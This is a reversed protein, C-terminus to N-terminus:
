SGAPRRGNQKQCTAFLPEIAEERSYPRGVRFPNELPSAKMGRRPVAGGVYLTLGNIEAWRVLETDVGAKLSAVALGGSQILAKRELQDPRM